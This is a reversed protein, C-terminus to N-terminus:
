PWINNLFRGFWSQQTFESAAGRGTYSIRFNSINGSSVANATTIDAPRVVGTIRLVREEGGVVRTRYGEVVLNGNPLVDVVTVAMRDVFSRTNSIQASGTFQRRNNSSGSVDLSANNTAGFDTNGKYVLAGTNKTNRDMARTERETANTTESITIILLDGVNRARNDEFLFAQRPDRRDWISDGYGMSVISGSLLCAMGWKKFKM